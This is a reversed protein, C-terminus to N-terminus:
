PALLEIRSLQRPQLVLLKVGNLTLARLGREGDHQQVLAVDAHDERVHPQGSRHVADIQRPLHPQAPGRERDNERRPLRALPGALERGTDGVYGLRPLRETDQQKRLLRQRIRLIVWPSPFSIAARTRCTLGEAGVTRATLPFYRASLAHAGAQETRLGPARQRAIRNKCDAILREVQALAERDTMAGPSRGSRYPSSKRKSVIGEFGLNCAHAFVVAGDEHELGENLPLGAGANALVSPSRRRLRAISSV